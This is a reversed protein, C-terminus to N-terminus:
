GEAIFGARKRQAVFEAELSHWTRGFAWLQGWVGYVGVVM